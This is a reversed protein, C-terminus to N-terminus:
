QEAARANEDSDQLIGALSDAIGRLDEEEITRVDLLVTEDSVRAIIPCPLMRMHHELSAASMNRPRVAASFSPIVAEPLSGGGTRAESEAVSIDASTIREGLLAALREARARVSDAPESIMRLVPIREPALEASLYDRLVEELAIVTFKDVRLARTLPNKKMRDVLEKKGVIIGAQPGGLLKDGSFTIVDAGASVAERVTPEHPLGYRSLDAFVGSGLDEILPVGARDALPRLAEAPVNETFGIIRYNSTHVKMIAKTNETVASEYDALHTKNTTGTEALQAGSMKMVDPIRFKGGIEILEGRPVIVEGGAALTNLVLMVAAANNNVAMAAEAGTLRCLLEELHAYREGRGGSALDYELDCYGGALRAMNQVQSHSLPARGLNTHLITGTANIVRRIRPAYLAEVKKETEEPIGRLIEEAAAESDAQGIRGRTEELVQRLAGTVVDRGYRDGLSRLPEQELLVDTKPIRRFFLSHDM